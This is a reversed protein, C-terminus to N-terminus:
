ECHENLREKAYEAGFELAKKWDECAGKKDGINLKSNGRNFYARQKNELDVKEFSLVKNYDEIAGMYDGNDDKLSGRNTLASIFDPAIEIAKNYDRLASKWTYLEDKVIARSYYSNPEIPNIELTITWNIISGSLDGNKYCEIGKDFYYDEKSKDFDPFKPNNKESFGGYAVLSADFEYGRKYMDLAWYLLNDATIPIENTQGSIEWIKESRQIEQVEYPYHNRIFKGLKELNVKKNSTFTFDMNTLTYDKLGSKVMSNYVDEASVMEKGFNDVFDGWTIFKNEMKKQGLTNFACLLFILTLINLKM